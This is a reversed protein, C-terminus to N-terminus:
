QKSEKLEFIAKIIGEIAAGIPFVIWTIHWAFTTFSLVFYAVIIVAWMASSVAKFIGANEDSLTSNKYTPTKKKTVAYFIILGTAMAVMLLLLAVGFLKNGLLIVPVPCLIYLAVAAAMLLGGYKKSNEAKNDPANTYARALISQIDGLSSVALAYAENESKGMATYNDYTLMLKGLTESKVSFAQESYPVSAFLGDIYEKLKQEM